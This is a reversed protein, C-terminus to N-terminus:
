PTRKGRADIPGGGLDSEREDLLFFRSRSRDFLTEEDVIIEAQIEPATLVAMAAEFDARNAYWIEMAVDYDAEPVLGTASDPHPLLYRRAYYIARGRLLREGLRAHGTEYRHVFAARDLDARRKLLTLTKLM